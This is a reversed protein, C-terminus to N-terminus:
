KSCWSPRSLYVVDADTLPGGTSSRSWFFDFYKGTVRSRRGAWRTEHLLARENSCRNMLWAVWIGLCIWELGIQKVPSIRWFFSNCNSMWWQSLFWWLKNPYGCVSFCTKLIVAFLWIIRPWHSEFVGFDPLMIWSLIFSFGIILCILVVRTRMETEGVINKKMFYRGMGWWDQWDECVYDGLLFAGIWHIIIDMEYDGCCLVVYM